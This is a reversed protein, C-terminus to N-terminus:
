EGAELFIRLRRIFEDVVARELCLAFKCLITSHGAHYAHVRLWLGGAVCRKHFTLADEVKHFKLGTMSRNGHVAAIRGSFEAALGCLRHYYYEQAEVVQVANRQLLEINALAVLAALAANGNTSIADYQAMVDLERRYIIGSLPHLGASMGKGVIVIDPTIGYQRYMFVEPTWFGTQIEDVTMLAGVRRTLKRALQLYETEVLIAERNMMIPEAWFGTIQEGYRAFVQELQRGDNPQVAVVKMNRIFPKWMGRLNQSFFGTGHYNGDLVVFIAPGSKRTREHHMLMIKLAAECAVSGTAIGLLATNLRTRSKMVKSFDGRGLEPCDPNAAEILRQALRKVPWQPINSHNDPVIGAALGDHVIRTLVPHDYGWSMQYHGATCDLFLKGQETIYFLGRGALLDDTQAVRGGGFSKQMVAKDVPKGVALDEITEGILGLLQGTDRNDLFRKAESMARCVDAGLPGALDTLPIGTFTKDTMVM